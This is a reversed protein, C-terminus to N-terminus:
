ARPSVRLLADRDSARLVRDFGSFLMPMDHLVPGSSGTAVHM